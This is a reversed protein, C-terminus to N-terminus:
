TNIKATGYKQQQMCVKDLQMPKIPTAGGAASYLSQTYPSRYDHHGPNTTEDPIHFRGPSPVVTGVKTALLNKVM